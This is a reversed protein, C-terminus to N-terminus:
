NRPFLNLARQTSAAEGGPLIESGSNQLQPCHCVETHCEQELLQTSLPPHRQAAAQPGNLQGRRAEFWRRVLLPRPSPGLLAQEVRPTQASPGGGVVSLVAESCVPRPCLSFCRGGARRPLFGEWLRPPSAGHTGTQPRGLESVM